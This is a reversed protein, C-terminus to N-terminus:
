NESPNRKRDTIDRFLLVVGPSSPFGQTEYWRQDAPYYFEYQITTEDDLARRLERHVTSAKLDPFGGV